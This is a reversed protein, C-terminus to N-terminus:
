KSKTCARRNTSLQMVGMGPTLMGGTVVLNSLVFCSMRFPMFVPQGTDAHRNNRREVIKSSVLEYRPAADVRDDEEGGV